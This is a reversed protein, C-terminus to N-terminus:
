RQINGDKLIGKQREQEKSFNDIKKKCNIATSYAYGFAKALEDETVESFPKNKFIEKVTKIRECGKFTNIDLDVYKYEVKPVYVIKEKVVTKVQPESTCGILLFSILVM